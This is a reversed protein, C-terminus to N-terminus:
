KLTFLEFDVQQLYEEVSTAEAPFVDEFTTKLSLYFILLVSFLFITAQLRRWLVSFLKIYSFAVHLVLALIFIRDGFSFCYVRNSDM